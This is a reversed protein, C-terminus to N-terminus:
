AIGKELIYTAAAPHLTSNQQSSPSSHGSWSGRTHIDYVVRAKECTRRNWRAYLYPEHNNITAATAPIPTHTHANWEGCLLFLGKWKWTTNNKRLSALRYSGSGLAFVLMVM